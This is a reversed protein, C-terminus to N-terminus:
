FYIFFYKMVSVRGFVKVELEELKFLKFVLIEISM